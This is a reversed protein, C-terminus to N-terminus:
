ALAMEEARDLDSSRGTLQGSFAAALLSRRLNIKRRQVTRVAESLAETASRRIDGDLVIRAQCDLSPCPILLEGIAAQDIKPMSGALGKARARLARHCRETQLALTLYEPLIRAPDARLRILLDPFVAWHSPGTYLASSGVLEPTNARQVFIDGSELWLGQVRDQAADTLKTYEDTFMRRTVATLTLIRVSGTISARASFGNRMPERLVSAVPVAPTKPVWVIQDLASRELALARQAAADLYANAADLRSLHDELIEVIRRQETIPPAPIPIERILKLGLRPRGVGHLHAEAWRRAEPRQLAYMVWRPEVESGLRIRICDAKVIASGLDEPALCARPLAEGLSAVLLDGALVEHKRLSQFHEESIHADAHKYVGDGINQLRVVLPGAKTYHASTLNSGFPGDTIAGQVPV